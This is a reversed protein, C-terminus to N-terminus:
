KSPIAIFSGLAAAVAMFLPQSFDVATECTAIRDLGSPAGFDFVVEQGDAAIPCPSTAPHSRIAAFDATRIATTLRALVDAPVVGLDNPPKAAQHVRGDRELIVSEDCTAAPCLGGRLEVTVLPGTPVPTASPAGTSCGAAVFAFSLVISPILRHRRRIIM